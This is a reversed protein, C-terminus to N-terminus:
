IWRTWVCVGCGCKMNRDCYFEDCKWEYIQRQSRKARMMIVDSFVFMAIWEMEFLLVELVGNENEQKISGFSKFNKSLMVWIARKM